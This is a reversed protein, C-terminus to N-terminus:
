VECPFIQVMRTVMDRCLGLLEEVIQECGIYEYDERISLLTDCASCSGYYVFTAYFGSPLDSGEHTYFTFVLTGEYDNAYGVQCISDAEFYGDFITALIRNLLTEYDDAVCDTYDMRSMIVGLNENIFKKLTSENEDWKKKCIDLM